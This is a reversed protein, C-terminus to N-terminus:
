QIARRRFTIRTWESIEAHNFIIAPSDTDVNDVKPAGWSGQTM